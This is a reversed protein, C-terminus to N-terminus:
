AAFVKVKMERERPGDFECFYIGQWQGLVLEGNEILVTM